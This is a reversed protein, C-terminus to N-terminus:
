GNKRLGSALMSWLLGSGWSIHMVPIALPLGLSLFNKKLRLRAQLGALLCIFVYLLIEGGLLYKVLPFFISLLGLGALSLVFLPPLAQRWRLTNPYRRLMRWKWYGYRWYQRALELFTARAFYVSRISPDLWIRGGAERVRANFEYDENTLLTEDFMGVSEILTRKFAGFPVTDVEAAQKAHRYLADGVGLPHAAAVAISEAIWTKAGARIEWVGGVNDGRKAELATVCNEVYDPYPKSHADLRVIIEGRSAEIARNVASPITRKVNDVVRVDLDSFERQFAAIVERTSDTSFGDSIIVEMKSRPFTQERLAELLLRITSQENYCPIVISVKPM